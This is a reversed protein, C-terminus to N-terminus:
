AVLFRFSGDPVLLAGARARVRAGPRLAVVEGEPERLWTGNTGGLDTVELEARSGVALQLHARALQATPISVDATVGRGLVFTRPEAGFPFETGPRVAASNFVAGLYRLAPADLEDPAPRLVAEIAALLDAISDAYADARLPLAARKRRELDAAWPEIFAQRDGADAITHWPDRPRGLSVLILPPGPAAGAQRAAAPAALDVVHVEADEAVLEHGAGVLQARVQAPEFRPRACPGLEAALHEAPDLTLAVRAM